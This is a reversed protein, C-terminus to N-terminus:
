HHSHVLAHGRGRAILWRHVPFTAVSALALSLALAGWFLPEAVGSAMAGPIVLMVLNDTIEMITIAATDAALAIRLSAALGLRARILPLLTLSYGFLFALAVALAITAVTGWGLASGIVMGLVEGIGCGTLCHLTASLALRNLSVGGGHGAHEHGHQQPPNEQDNM